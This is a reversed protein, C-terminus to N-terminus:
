LDMTKSAFGPDFIFRICRVLGEGTEDECVGFVTFLSACVQDEDFGIPLLARRKRWIPAGLFRDRFYEMWRWLTSRAVGLLTQIKRASASDVRQQRLAIVVLIVVGWYSRRGLFLCSAPLTRRRCKACCLSHRVCLEEPLHAPGGKPKREYRAFHLAGDCHPCGNERTKEALDVDIQHLLSFLSSKELLNLLM